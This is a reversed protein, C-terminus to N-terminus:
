RDDDVVRGLTRKSRADIMARARARTEGVIGKSEAYKRNFDKRRDTELRADLRAAAAAAADTTEGLFFLDDPESGFELSTPVRREFDFALKTATAHAARADSATAMRRMELRERARPFAGDAGGDALTFVARREPGFSFGDEDEMGAPKQTSGPVREDQGFPERTALFLARLVRMPVALAFAGGYRTPPDVGRFLVSRSALARELRERPTPRHRTSAVFNDGIRRDSFSTRGVTEALRM